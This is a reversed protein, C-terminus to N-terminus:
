RPSSGWQRSYKFGRRLERGADDLLDTAPEGVDTQSVAGAVYEAFVVVVFVLFALVHAASCWLCIAHIVFLETSLLYIAFGVGLTSLVLRTLRIARNPQRQWAVPLNLLVMTAFFVLGMVAVPVGLIVSQASTTVQECNVVGTDPCALVAAGAYHAITLYTSVGLGGLSLLM